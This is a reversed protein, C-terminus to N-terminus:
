TSATLPSAQASPEHVAVKSALEDAAAAFEEPTVTELEGFRVLLEECAEPPLREAQPHIVREEQRIHAQVVDVYASAADLMDPISSVDGAKVAAALEAIARAHLSSVLHHEFLRLVRDEASLLDHKELSRWLVDDEKFAHNEDAMKVLFTAARGFWEPDLGQGKRARTVARRLAALVKEIQRHEEKLIELAKM